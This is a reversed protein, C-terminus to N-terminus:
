LTEVIPTIVPRTRWSMGGAGQFGVISNRAAKLDFDAADKIGTGASDHCGSISMVFELTRTDTSLFRELQVDTSPTEVASGTHVFYPTYRGLVGFQWARTMQLLYSM